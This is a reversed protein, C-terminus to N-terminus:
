VFGMCLLLSRTCCFTFSYIIKLFYVLFCLQRKLVASYVRLLFFYSSYKMISSKARIKKFIIKLDIKPKCCFKSSPISIDWIGMREVCMCLKVRQWCWKGSLSHTHTHTCTHTQVLSSSVTIYWLWGSNVTLVKSNVRPTM